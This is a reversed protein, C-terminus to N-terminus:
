FTMAVRLNLSGFGQTHDQDEFEHTVWTQSWNIEAAFRDFLYALAVGFQLEGVLPEEDVGPGGHFESGEVFTNHEVVRGGARAFGYASLGKEQAARDATAAATPDDIRGVGFDDPLRFGIRATLNGELHRKVTGLVLAADPIAQLGWSGGLDVGARWKRRLTLQVTAEGDIQSDWGKPDEGDFIDHVMKQADEALSPPGTMGLDLQVHDLTHENARQYFLGAYLYGAYPRDDPDPIRTSIVEPTFIQQAIMVGLARRQFEADFPLFPVTTQADLPWSVSLGVGSTYWRDTDNFPSFRPSDNDVYVGVVLHTNDAPAPAPPEAVPEGQATTALLAGALAALVTRTRKM